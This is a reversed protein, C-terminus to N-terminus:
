EFGETLGRMLGKLILLGREPDIPMDGILHMQGQEDLEKAVMATVKERAGAPLLDAIDRGLLWAGAVEYDFADDKLLAQGEDYLRVINGTDLYNRIIVSLDHADKGPETLRRESWAVLKLVTLAPLTVVLLREGDPLAIQIANSAIEKFGFVNMVFAGDPPWAITRDEREIGGFPVLDIEIQNEFKIKHVVNQVPLFFGSNLLRARIVHFDPWGSVVFALDVDKTMRGTDIGHAHQLLVDRATAGALFYHVEGVAARVGAALRALWRLETKGSLDLLTHTM